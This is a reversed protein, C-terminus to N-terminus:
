GGMHRYAKNEATEFRSAADNLYSKIQNLTPSGSTLFNARIIDWIDLLGVQWYLGRLGSDLTRLRSNVNHIRTAYSRLKETDVKFYPNAAAYARGARDRWDRLWKAFAKIANKIVNFAQVIAEKAKSALWAIGQVIHIVADIIGIMAAAAAVTGLTAIAIQPFIAVLIGVGIAIGTIVGANESLWKEITKDVGFAHLLTGIDEPHHLATEWIMPLLPMVADFIDIKGLDVEFEGNEFTVAQALSQLAKERDEPSLKNFEGILNEIAEAAPRDMGLEQLLPAIKEPNDALLEVVIPILLGKFEEFDESSIDANGSGMAKEILNMVVDAAKKRQEQPLKNVEAVLETIFKSMESEQTPDHLGNEGLMDFIHHFGAIDFPGADPTSIVTTREPPIIQVEGQQHVYDKEGNFAYIKELQLEYYAEGWLRKAEAVVEESFGPGDMSYCYTIYDSYSSFLTVFQANNGGQSHGTVYLNKKSQGEFNELVTKNFYDLSWQQMESREAGYAVANYAWNGNGTGRYAVYVDGNSSAFTTAYMGGSKSSTGYGGSSWSTDVIKLAGIDPSNAVISMLKTKEESNPLADVIQKVSPQNGVNIPNGAILYLLQDLVASTNESASYAM